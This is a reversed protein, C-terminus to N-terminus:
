QLPANNTRPEAHVEFRAQSDLPPNAPFSLISASSPINIDRNFGALAGTGTMTWNFLTGGGGGSATGGLTGGAVEQAAAPTMLIADIDITTAAPLGDIIQMDTEGIYDALIPMQASGSGNDPVLVPVASARTTFLAAICFLLAALGFITALRAISNM